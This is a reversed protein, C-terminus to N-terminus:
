AVRTGLTGEGNFYDFLVNIADTIPAPFNPKVGKAELAGQLDEVSVKELTFGGRAEVGEQLEEVEFEDLIDIFDGRNRLEDILDSSDIAALIDAINVEVDTNYTVTNYRDM